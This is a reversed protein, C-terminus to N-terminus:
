RFSKLKSIIGMADQLLDEEKLHGNRIKDTIKDGVTQVLDGFMGMNEGSMLKQLVQDFGGDHELAETITSRDLGTSIEEAIEGLKSGKVSKLVTEFMPGFADTSTPNATTNGRFEADIQLANDGLRQNRAATNTFACVYDEDIVQHEIPEGAMRAMLDQFLAWSGDPDESIDERIRTICALLSLETLVLERKSESIEPATLIQSLQVERAVEMKSAEVLTDVGSGDSRSVLDFLGADRARESFFEIFVDSNRDIVRYRKKLAKKIMPDLNKINRLFTGYFTNFACVITAEKTSMKHQQLCRCFFTRARRLEFFRWVALSMIRVDGGRVQYEAAAYRAITTAIRADRGPYAKLSSPRIRGKPTPGSLVTNENPVRVPAAAITELETKATPSRM